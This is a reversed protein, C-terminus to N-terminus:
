LAISPSGLLLFLRSFLFIYVVISSVRFFFSFQPVRVKLVFDTEARSFTRSLWFRHVEHGLPSGLFFERRPEPPFPGDDDDDAM